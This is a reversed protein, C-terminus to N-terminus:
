SYSSVSLPIEISPFWGKQHFYKRQPTLPTTSSIVSKWHLVPIFTMKLPDIGGDDPNDDDEATTTAPAIEAKTTDLFNSLNELFSNASKHAFDSLTHVFKANIRLM